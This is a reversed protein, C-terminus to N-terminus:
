DPLESAKRYIKEIGVLTNNHMFRYLTELEAKAKLAIAGGLKESKAFYPLADDINNTDMLRLCLGIYYYGEGYKEAKLAQRFSHIAEPYKKNEMLNMAILHHCANRVRRLQLKTDESPDKVLDAAKLTQHANEAASAYDQAETHTKV